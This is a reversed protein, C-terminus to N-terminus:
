AKDRSFLGPRREEDLAVGFAQEVEDRSTLRRLRRRDRRELLLEVGVHQQHPVLRGFIWRSLIARRSRRPETKAPEPRLQNPVLADPAVHQKGREENLQNPEGRRNPGLHDDVLHHHVLGLARQDRDSHPQPHEQKEARPHTPQPLVEHQMRPVSHVRHEAALHELMKEPQVQRVELVPRRPREDRPHM